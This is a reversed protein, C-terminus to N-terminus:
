QWRLAACSMSWMSEDGRFRPRWRPRGLLKGGEDVAAIRLNTGGLDVGIAYDCM